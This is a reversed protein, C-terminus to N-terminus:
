GSLATGSGSNSPPGAGFVVKLIEQVISPLALMLFSLAASKLDFGNVLQDVFTSAGALIAVIAARWPAAATPLKVTDNSLATRVAPIMVAMLAILWHAQVPEPLISADAAYATACFLVMAAVVPLAVAFRKM